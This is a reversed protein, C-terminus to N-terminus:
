TERNEEPSGCKVWDGYDKVFKSSKWVYRFYTAHERDFVDKYKIFGRIVVFLRSAGIELIYLEEDPNTLGFFAYCDLPQSNAAIVDPLLRIPFMIMDGLESNDIIEEPAVCAVCLSETIFAATPGDISVAFDVRYGPEPKPSLVLPKIEVRLRAREKSIYLEINEKAADASKETAAVSRELIEIQKNVQKSSEEMAKLQAGMSDAQERMAKWQRFMVHRQRGMEHRQRRLERAQRRYVMWTLFMVVLQLGGVAALVGTFWTLKKQTSRDEDSTQKNGQQTHDNTTTADRQGEPVVPTQSTAPTPKAVQTQDNKTAKSNRTSGTRNTEAAKKHQPAKAPQQALVIIAILLWKM